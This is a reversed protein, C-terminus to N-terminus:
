EFAKEINSSVFQVKAEMIKVLYHSARIKTHLQLFSLLLMSFCHIVLLVEHVFLDLFLRFWIFSIWFFFFSFSILFPFTLRGRLQSAWRACTHPAITHLITTGRTHACGYLIHMNHSCAYVHMGWFFVKRYFLSVQCAHRCVCVCM